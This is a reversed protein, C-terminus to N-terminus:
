NKLKLYDDFVTKVSEIYDELKKDGNAGDNLDDFLYQLTTPSFPLSNFSPFIALKQYSTMLNIWIEKVKFWQELEHLHSVMEVQDMCPLQELRAYAFSIFHQYIKPHQKVIADYNITDFKVNQFPNQKSFDDDIILYYFNEEPTKSSVSTEVIRYATVASWNINSAPQPELQLTEGLQVKVLDDQGVPCKDDNFILWFGFQM